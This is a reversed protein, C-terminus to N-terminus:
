AKRRRRAWGAGLLAASLLVLTGPEPVTVIPPPDFTIGPFTASVCTPVEDVPCSFPDNDGGFAFLKATTGSLRLQYRYELFPTDLFPSRGSPVTPKVGGFYSEQTYYEGTYENFGREWLNTYASVLTGGGVQFDEIKLFIDPTSFNLRERNDPANTQYLDVYASTIEATQCLSNGQFTAGNVALCDDPVSFQVEGEWNLGTFAGGFLPDFTGRIIASHAPAAAGLALVSACTLANLVKRLSNTM